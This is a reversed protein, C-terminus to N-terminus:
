KKDEEREKIEIKSMIWLISVIVASYIAIQGLGRWWELGVDFM